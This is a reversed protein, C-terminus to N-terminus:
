RVTLTGWEVASANGAEDWSRVQIRLTGRVKAPVKWRVSHITGDYGDHLGVSRRWLLKKGQYVAVDERTLSDEWVRYQLKAIKGRVGKVPLVYVEPAKTDPPPATGYQLPYQILRSIDQGAAPNAVSGNLAVAIVVFTKTIALEKGGITFTAVPGSSSSTIPAPQDACSGGSGVKCVRTRGDGFHYALLAGGEVGISLAVIDSADLVSRNALTVAVTIQGADDNAVDITSIDPTGAGADGIPDDYSRSGGATATTAAGLACAAALV